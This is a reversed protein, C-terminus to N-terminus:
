PLFFLEFLVCVRKMERKAKRGFNSIFHILFKVTFKFLIQDANLKSFFRCFVICVVFIWVCAVHSNWAKTCNINEVKNESSCLFSKKIFKKNRGLVILITSTSSTFMNTVHVFHVFSKFYFIDAARGNYEGFVGSWVCWIIMINIMLSYLKM